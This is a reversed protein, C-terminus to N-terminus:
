IRSVCIALVGESIYVGPEELYLMSNVLTASAVCEYGTVRRKHSGGDEWFCVVSRRAVEPSWRRRQDKGVSPWGACEFLIFLDARPAGMVFSVGNASNDLELVGSWVAGRVDNSQFVTEGLKIIVELMSVVQVIQSM